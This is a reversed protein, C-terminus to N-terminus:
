QPLNPQSQATVPEAAAGQEQQQLSAAQQQQAAQLERQVREVNRIGLQRMISPAQLLLSLQGNGIIQELRAALEAPPADYDPIEEVYVDFEVSNVDHKLYTKGNKEYTQNLMITIQDSEFDEGLISILTEETAVAQITALLVRGLRKKHQRLMDFAFGKTRVSANQRRAVAAGSVANTEQGLLEDFIGMAQQLEAASNQMVRFQSDSLALNNNLQWKTDKPLVIVGSPDTIAEAMHTTDMDTDGEVILQNTNLLHMMKSRRKNYETQPDVAAAVVGYPSYDILSRKHVLPIYSFHGSQQELPMNYLLIDETFFASWVEFGDLEEIETGDQREKEAVKKSFAEKVRGGENVYRYKVAAKKYEIEVILVKDKKQDIFRREETDKYADLGIGSSHNSTPIAENMYKQKLKELAKKHEPFQLKAKEVDLWKARGVYMSDSLDPTTDDIDWFMDRNDVYDCTLRTGETNLAIWGIGSVLSDKFALSQKYPIDAYEQVQQAYATVGLALIKDEEEFTRPRYGVKTRNQIETGALADIKPQILNIVIDPQNRKGLERKEDDTWHEGEYFRVWTKNNEQWRTYQDSDVTHRYMDMLKQLKM